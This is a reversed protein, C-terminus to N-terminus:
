VAQGRVWRTPHQPTIPHDLVRHLRKPRSQGILGPLSPPPTSTVSQILLAVGPAPVRKLTCGRVRVRLYAERSRYRYRSRAGGERPRGSVTAGVVAVTERLAPRAQYSLASLQCGIASPGVSAAELPKRGAGRSGTCRCPVARGIGRDKGGRISQSAIRVNSYNM